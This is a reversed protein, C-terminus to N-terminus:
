EADTEDVGDPSQADDPREADDSNQADVAESRRDAASQKHAEFKADQQAADAVGLANREAEYEAAELQATIEEASPGAPESGSISGTPSSTPSGPSPQQTKSMPNSSSQDDWTTPDAAEVGAMFEDRVSSTMARLQAVQKGAKRLVSPLQEPGVVVLAILAIVLVEPGGINFM